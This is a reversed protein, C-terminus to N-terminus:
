VKPVDLKEDECIAKFQEARLLATINAAVRSPVGIGKLWDNVATARREALSRQRPRNRNAISQYENEM